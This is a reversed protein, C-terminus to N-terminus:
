GGDRDAGDPRLSRTSYALIRASASRLGHAM